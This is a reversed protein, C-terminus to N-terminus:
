KNKFSRKPFIKKFNEKNIVRDYKYWTVLKIVLWVITLLSIIITLIINIDNWTIVNLTVSAIIGIKGLAENM